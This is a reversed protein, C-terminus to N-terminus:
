TREIILLFDIKRSAGYIQALTTRKVNPIIAVVEGALKNLYAELAPEDNELDIDLHHVKYTVKLEGDSAHNGTRSTTLRPVPVM